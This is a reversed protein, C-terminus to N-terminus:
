PSNTCNFMANKENYVIFCLMDIYLVLKIHNQKFNTISQNQKTQFHNNQNKYSTLRQQSATYAQIYEKRYMKRLNQEVRM